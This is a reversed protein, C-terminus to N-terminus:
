GNLPPLANWQKSVLFTFSRHMYELNFPPLELRTRLGRLNYTVNKLNFFIRIYSAGDSYLCNYLIVLSQFRRRQVLSKINVIKLLYDYPVSKSFSLISRLLYYNTSEM